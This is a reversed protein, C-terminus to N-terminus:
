RFYKFIKWFNTQNWFCFRKWSLCNKQKRRQFTELKSIKKQFINKLDKKSVNKLRNKKNTCLAIADKAIMHVDFLNENESESLPRSLDGIQSLNSKVSNIAQTSGSGFKLVCINPHIKSFQDGLDECVEQTSSSGSINLIFTKSHFLSNPPFLFSILLIPFLSFYILFNLINIKSFLKFWRSHMHYFLFM